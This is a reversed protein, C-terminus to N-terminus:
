VPLEGSAPRKGVAGKENPDKHGNILAAHNLAKRLKEGLYLALPHRRDAICDEDQIFEEHHSDLNSRPM